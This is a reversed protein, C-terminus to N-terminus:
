PTSNPKWSGAEQNLTPFALRGVDYMKREGCLQAAVGTTETWYCGDFVMDSPENYHLLIQRM